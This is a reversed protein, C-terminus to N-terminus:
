KLTDLLIDIEDRLSELNEKTQKRTVSTDSFLANIARLATDLSSNTKKM